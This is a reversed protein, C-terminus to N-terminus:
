MFILNPNQYTLFPHQVKYRRPIDFDCLTSLNLESYSTESINYEYSPDWLYSLREDPPFLDELGAIDEDEGLNDDPQKLFRRCYHSKFIWEPTTYPPKNYETHAFSTFKNLYVSINPFCYSCHTVFSFPFDPHPTRKYANFKRKTSLLLNPQYRIVYSVNWDAIKHFYYPFYTKGPVIYYPEPPNRIIYRLAKRTLIEDCDSVTIVDNTTINFHKEIYPIAFDRQSMELKWSQPENYNHISEEPSFSVLRIKDKYQEIEKTFPEFTITKAQGSHSKNCYIIIFYDVYPYYRWIRIYAQSAENNYMFTDFIRFNRSINDEEVDFEMGVDFYEEDILFGNRFYFISLLLFISYSISLFDKSKIIRKFPAEFILM